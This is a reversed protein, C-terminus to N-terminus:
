VTVGAIENLRETEVVNYKGFSAENLQQEIFVDKAADIIYLRHQQDLFFKPKM